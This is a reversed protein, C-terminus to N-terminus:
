QDKQISMCSAPKARHTNVAEIPMHIEEMKCGYAVPTLKIITHLPVEIYPLQDATRDLFYALLCRLVAQHGIVLVNKQRELEMIVPELRAVLDEYSEGRPYRYHFKDLDRNRFEEPHKAEIEEYTMEECIGADIENLAKWREQPAEIYSATQITRKMWSTWVKLDRIRQTKIFDGLTRAYNWGKDSLDSDGGIKGQRNHCSEGHRTLYITRPLIHINMLYYIVRSQIHGEHRHVLVKAGTNFIKMFSLHSELIEDLPEYLAEYHQIRLLFDNLVTENEVDKYDPSNVKVEKITAQIIKPDNCISEVFLLKYGMKEVVISHIMRRRDRTTNTADFVAVEGGGGEIWECADELADVAVRERLAMAETNDPRFFDNSKYAETAQRRYEGLNFVKTNIGIWNLYRSLKKGMYTKGRAPLGVLAIVHPTNVYNVREGNRWITASQVRGHPRLTMWKRQFAELLEDIIDSKTVRDAQRQQLSTADPNPLCLDNDESSDIPSVTRNTRESPSKVVKTCSVTVGNLDWGISGNDSRRGVEM